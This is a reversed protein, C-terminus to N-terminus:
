AVSEPVHETTEHQANDGNVIEGKETIVGSEILHKATRGYSGQLKWALGTRILEAFLELAEEDSLLGMEYDIIKDVM